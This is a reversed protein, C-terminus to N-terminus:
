VRRWIEPLAKQEWSRICPTDYIICMSDSTTTSTGVTDGAKVNKQIITGSIPSTITYDEMSRESDSLSLEASRVNDSASQVQKTLASGSLQILAGDVGVTDGEHVCLAAVTGGSSATITQEYQCTFHTSSMASVGNISATGAMTTNLTGPNSVAIVVSRVALNGSTLSDAGSVSQVTGTTSEFTGDITVQATQGASFGAADAAPFDLTLLLTSDDRVTAVEQGANVVDGAKSRFLM